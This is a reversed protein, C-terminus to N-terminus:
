RRDIIMSQMSVALGPCGTVAIKMAVRSPNARSRDDMRDMPARRAKIPHISERESGTM